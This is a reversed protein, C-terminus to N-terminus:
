KKKDFNLYKKPDFKINKEIINQNNDLSQKSAGKSSIQRKLLKKKREVDSMLNLDHPLKIVAIPEHYKIRISSGDPKVLITPYQRGYIERNIPSISARYSHHRVFAPIDNLNNKILKCANKFSM